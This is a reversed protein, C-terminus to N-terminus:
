ENQIFVIWEELLQKLNLLTMTFSYLGGGGYIIANPSNFEVWTSSDQDLLYDEEDNTGSIAHEVEELLTDSEKDSISQLLESLVISGQIENNGDCSYFISNDETSRIKSFSLHYQDKISM